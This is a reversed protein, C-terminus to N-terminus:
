KSGKEFVRTSMLVKLGVVCLAWAVCFMTPNNISVVTWGLPRWLNCFRLFVESWMSIPATLFATVGPFFPGVASALLLQISGGFSILEVLPGVIMNTVPSLMAVSGTKYVLYPIVLTQASMTMTLSEIFQNKAITDSAVGPVHIRLWISDPPTFFLIGATALVSLHLSMGTIWDPFLLVSIVISVVLSYIPSVARGWTKGLLSFSWMVAARFLPPSVGVMWVYMWVASFVLWRVAWKPCLTKEFSWQTLLVILGVNSGSAVVLHQIGMIELTPRIQMPVSDQDGMVFALWLSAALYSTISEVRLHLAALLVKRKERLIRPFDVIQSCGSDKFRYINVIAKCFLWFPQKKQTDSGVLPTSIKDRYNNKEGTALLHEYGTKAPSVSKTSDVGSKVVTGVGLANHKNKTRVKTIDRLDHTLILLLLFILVIRVIIIIIKPNVIKRM